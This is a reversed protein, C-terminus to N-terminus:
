LGGKKNELTNELDKNMKEESKGGIEETKAKTSLRM